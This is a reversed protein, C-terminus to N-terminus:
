IAASPIVGSPKSLATPGTHRTMRAVVPPRAWISGIPLTTAPGKSSTPTSSPKSGTSPIPMSLQWDRAPHSRRMKGASAFGSQPCRDLSACPLPPQLGTSSSTKQRLQANWGIYRDRCGIHRPASSWALCALPRGQAFVLYKLHEGVPRAYGLYHFQALLGDHLREFPTRRVQRIDIPALSAIDSQIPSQDVFIPEPISAHRGGAVSRGPSAQHLRPRLACFSGAVFWTKPSDM